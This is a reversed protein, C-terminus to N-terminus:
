RGAGSINQVDEQNLRKTLEVVRGCQGGGQTNEVFAARM